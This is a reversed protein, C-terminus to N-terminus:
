LAGTKIFQGSDPENPIDNIENHMHMMMKMIQGHSLINARKTANSWKPENQNTIVSQQMFNYYRQAYKNPHVSSILDADAFISKWKNELQKGLNYEQLYDIIGIYYLYMGDASMYCNRSGQNGLLQAYLEANQEKLHDENGETTGKFTVPESPNEKM